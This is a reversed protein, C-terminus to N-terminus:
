HRLPTRDQARTGAALTWGPALTLQWGEGRLPEDLSGKPLPVRAEQMSGAPGRRLLAGGARVELRGWADSIEITGYFLGLDDLASVDGPDFTYRLDQGLPLVLVPGEVFRRRAEEVTAAHREARAREAAQLAAGDYRATRRQAEADLDEPLSLELRRALLDALGRADALQTRWGPALEDLLVGYAPGSAYAFSRVFSPAREEQELKVAARDALVWPPLGSLVLGTYEALGENRELADEREAAGPCRARRQARFLLADALATRRAGERRVLAEALARWELRLWVRGPETDLHENGAGALDGSAALGLRPQLRHFSEHMLLQRRAYRNEPLPWAVMTWRVGGWELATNAIGIGEPLTGVFLDGREELLGAEDAQNAVLARSGREVFLMPGLLSEGWLRGDDELSAEEAEAFARAAQDTPLPDPPLPSDQSGLFPAVLLWAIM